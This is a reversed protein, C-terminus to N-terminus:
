LEEILVEGGNRFQATLQSGALLRTGILPVGEAELIQVTRPREHWLVQALWLNLSVQVQNGLIVNTIRRRRFGLSEILQRPSPLFGSFGTDIVAEVSRLRGNGSVMQLSVRAQLDTDIHGRVVM